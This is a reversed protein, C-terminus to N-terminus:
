AVKDIKTTLDITLRAVEVEDDSGIDKSKVVLQNNEYAFTYTTNTDQVESNIFDALNQIEEATYEPKKAAKAWAHVDGATAQIWNLESFKKEGDGIKVGLAPPTLGSNTTASPIEAIALEGKGLILESNMWNSYTDFKHNIRVNLNAM